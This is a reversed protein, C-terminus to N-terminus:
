KVVFLVDKFVSLSQYLWFQQVALMTFRSSSYRDVSCCSCARASEGSVTLTMGPIERELREKVEPAPCSGASAAGFLVKLLSKQSIHIDFSSFIDSHLMKAEIHLKM